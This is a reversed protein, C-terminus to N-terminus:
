GILQVIFQYLGEVYVVACAGIGVIPIVVDFMTNQHTRTYSYLFLIPIAVVLTLSQGVGYVSLMALFEETQIHLAVSDVILLVIFLLLELVVSILIIISLVISFSLSNRNTLLYKRYEEKTAGLRLFLRERNKTWLSVLVFILFIIPSRTALFPYVFFSLNMAGTGSLINLVYSAIVFAFPIIAFLRFIILKKNVFVKKPSYNIFFNFVSFAFLDAFVNVQVRQSLLSTTLDLVISEDLGIKVFLGNIYRLYVFCVGLGIGLFAMGYSAIFAWYPRKRNLVLGFSAVIFLPTSLSSIFTFVGQATNGLPNWSMTQTALANLFAIQGFLIALWAIIRLARYSLPGQYKIDKENFLREKLKQLRKEKRSLPKNTEENVANDEPVITTEKNEEM